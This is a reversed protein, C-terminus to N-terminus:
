PGPGGRVPLDAPAIGRLRSALGAAATQVGPGDGAAYSSVLSALLARVRQGQPVEPKTLDAITYWTAKPDDSHPIVRLAEGSMIGSMVSLTDYLDALEREVPDIKQDQRLKAHVDKVAGLFGENNVLENFTYHDKDQPLGAAERLGAHTVKVIPAERWRDPTALMSLVWETPELSSVSEFGFPKAGVVRRATERAFTDLPKQRGGEQIAIYRLPEVESAAFTAGPISLALLSLTLLNRMM